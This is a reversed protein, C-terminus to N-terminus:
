PLSTPLGSTEQVEPIELLHLHSHSLDATSKSNPPSWTHETILLQQGTNTAPGPHHDQHPTQSLHSKHWPIYQAQPTPPTAPHHGFTPPESLALFAEPAWGWEKFRPFQKHGQLSSYYGVLQSPLIPSSVPSHLVASPHGQATSVCSLATGGWLMASCSLGWKCRLENFLLGVRITKQSM